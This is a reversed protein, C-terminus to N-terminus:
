PIYNYSPFILDSFYIWDTSGGLGGEKVYLVLSDTSQDFLIRAKQWRGGIRYVEFEYGEIDENYRLEVTYWSAGGSFSHLFSIYTKKKIEEYEIDFLTPPFKVSAELIEDYVNNFLRPALKGEWTASESFRFGDPRNKDEFASLNFAAMVITLMLFIKKM